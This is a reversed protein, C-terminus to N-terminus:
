RSSIAKKYTADRVRVIENSKQLSYIASRIRHGLKYREITVDPNKSLINYLETLTIEKGKDFENRILNVLSTHM